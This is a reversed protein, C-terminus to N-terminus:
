VRVSKLGARTFICAADSVIFMKEMTDSAAASSFRQRVRPKFLFVGRQCRPDRLEVSLRPSGWQVQLRSRVRPQESRCKFMTIRTQASVRTWIWVTRRTRETRPSVRWPCSWSRRRGAGCSGRRTPASWPKWPFLTPERAWLQPLDGGRVWKEWIWGIPPPRPWFGEGHTWRPSRFLFFCVDTNVAPPLSVLHGFYDWSHSSVGGWVKFPQVHWGPQAHARTRSPQYNPHPTGSQADRRGEVGRREKERETAEVGRQNISVEPPTKKRWAWPAPSWHDTLSWCGIVLSSLSRSLTRQGILASTPSARGPQLLCM